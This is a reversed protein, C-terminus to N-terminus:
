TGKSTGESDLKVKCLSVKNAKGKLTLEGVLEFMEEEKNVGEMFFHSCLIQANLEGCKSRIRATTNLTDGTYVLERKLSGIEGVTVEGAHVGAKFTPILGYKDQYTEGRAHIYSKAYKICALCNMRNEENDLWSVLIEDGAYQYIRGKTDLIALSVDYFFDNLLNYQKRHGLREAIATSDTMDLFLFIRKEKQPRFYKGRLFEWFVGPGYKENIKIAILTLIM